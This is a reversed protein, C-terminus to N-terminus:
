QLNLKTFVDSPIDKKFVEKYSYVYNGKTDLKLYRGQKLKKM